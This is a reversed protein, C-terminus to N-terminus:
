AGEKRMWKTYRLGREPSGRFSYGSWDNHTKAVKGQEVLKQLIRVIAAVRFAIGRHGGKPAAGVGSVPYFQGVLVDPGISQGVPMAALVEELTPAPGKPCRLTGRPFTGWSDVSDPTHTLCRAKVVTKDGWPLSVEEMRCPKPM